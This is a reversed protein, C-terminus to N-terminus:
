YGRAGREERQVYMFTYYGLLTFAQIANHDPGLYIDSGNMGNLPHNGCRIETRFMQWKAMM